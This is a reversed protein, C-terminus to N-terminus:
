RRADANRLPAFESACTAFLSINRLLMPNTRPNPSAPRTEPDTVAFWSNGEGASTQTLAVCNLGIVPDPSRTLLRGFQRGAALYGTMDVPTEAEFEVRGCSDIIRYQHLDRWNEAPGPANVILHLIGVFPFGCRLLGEAQTVGYRDVNKSWNPGRLALRKVEIAASYEARPKGEFTPVILIDIEGPLGPKLGLDPRPLEAFFLYDWGPRPWSGLAPEVVFNFFSYLTSAEQVVYRVLQREPLGVLDKGRYAATDFRV